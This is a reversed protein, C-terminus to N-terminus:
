ECKTLTMDHAYCFDECFEMRFGEVDTWPAIVILRFDKEGESIEIIGSGEQVARSLTKLDYEKKLTRYLQVVQQPSHVLFSWFPQGFEPHDEFMKANESDRIHKYLDMYTEFKAIPTGDNKRLELM